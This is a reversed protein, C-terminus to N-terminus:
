LRPNPRARHLRWLGLAAAWAKRAWAQEAPTPEYARAPRRLEQDVIILLWPRGGNRCKENLLQDYGALQLFWDEYVTMEGSTTKYDVIFSETLLDITGGYFRGVLTHERQGFQPDIKYDLYIDRLGPVDEFEGRQLREHLERGRDAAATIALNAAERVRREWDETEPPVEAVARLLNKEKWAQLGPRPWVASLVTTVSPVAGKVPREVVTGDPLYWRSM